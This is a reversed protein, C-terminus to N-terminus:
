WLYSFDRSTLTRSPRALSETAEVEAVIKQWEIAVQDISKGTHALIVPSWFSKFEDIGKSNALMLCFQDVVNYTAAFKLERLVDICDFINKKYRLELGINKQLNTKAHGTLWTENASTTYNYYGDPSRPIDSSEGAMQKEAWDIFYFAYGIALPGIEKLVDKSAKENEEIMSETMWPPETFGYENSPFDIFFAEFDYESIRSMDADASSQNTTYQPSLFETFTSISYEPSKPPLSTICIMSCTAAMKNVM